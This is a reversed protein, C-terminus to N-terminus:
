ACTSYSGTSSSVRTPSNSSSDNVSVANPTMIAARILCIWANMASVWINTSGSNKRDPASYGSFPSGDQSVTSVLISGSVYMTSGIRCATNSWRATLGSASFTSLGPTVQFPQSTGRPNDSAMTATMPRAISPMAMASNRLVSYGDCMAYSAAANPSGNILLCRSITEWTKSTAIVFLSSCDPRAVWGM